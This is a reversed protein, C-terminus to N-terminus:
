ESAAERDASLKVLAQGDQRLENSPTNSQLTVTAGTFSSDMMTLCVLEGNELGASVYIQDGGARLVAVQRNRLVNDKDIVWLLNGARLIYRPLSVVGQLERGQINANVFTGMRLVLGAPDKLAYPDEIRAITYLVRSREDFVGETRHLSAVWQKREGAVETYLDVKANGKYAEVGTPLELYDLKSQPIPLRVEAQEVSFIDALPTGVTVFQGLEGHKASILADYPAKIITRELNDRATNLDAQAALLRAEAEALQPKRLYLDTADQSRKGGKPLNNWERLAVQARGKEQALSSEASRLVSQARLSGTQYDRPDIRLMVDGTAIFGGVLFNEAAEIIRGSVEAQLATERLPSVTGQAQVPIRLNQKVVQAADVTVPKYAPEAIEASPRNLYLLVSIVVAGGLM